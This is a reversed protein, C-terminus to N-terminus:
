LNLPGFLVDSVHATKQSEDIRVRVSHENFSVEMSSVVRELEHRAFGNWFFEHADNSIRQVVESRSEIEDGVVYFERSGPLSGLVGLERYFVCPVFKYGGHIASEFILGGFPDSVEDHIDYLGVLSPISIGDPGQVSEVNLVLVLKEDVMKLPLPQPLNAQFVLTARLKSKGLPNGSPLVSGFDSGPVSFDLYCILAVRGNTYNEVVSRGEAVTVDKWRQVIQHWDNTARDIVDLSDKKTGLRKENM